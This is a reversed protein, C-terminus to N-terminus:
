NLKRVPVVKGDVVIQSYACESFHVKRIKWSVLNANLTQRFADFLFCEIYGLLIIFVCYSLHCYRRSSLIKLIVTDELHCYRLSSLIQSIVTDSLHCSRLRGFARGSLGLGLPDPIESAWVSQRVFRFRFTPYPLTLISSIYFFGRPVCLFKKRM